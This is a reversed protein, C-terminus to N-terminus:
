KIKKKHQLQGSFLIDFERDLVYYFHQWTIAFNGQANLSVIEVRGDAKTQDRSTLRHAKYVPDSTSKLVMLRYM